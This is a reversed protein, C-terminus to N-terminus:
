PGITLRLGNSVVAGLANNLDLTAWQSYLEVYHAALGTPLSLPVVAEGTANMPAGFVFEASMLQTCGPAGLPGLPINTETFGICCLAFWNPRGESLKLLTTTGFALPPYQSGAITAGEVRFYPM